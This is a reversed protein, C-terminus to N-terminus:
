SKLKLLGRGSKEIRSDPPLRSAVQLQGTAGLSQVRSVRERVESIPMARGNGHEALVWEVVENQDVKEHDEPHLGQVPEMWFGKQLNVLGDPRHYRLIADLLYWRQTSPVQELDEAEPTGELEALLDSCHWQYVDGFRQHQRISRRGNLVQDVVRSALPQQNEINLPLDAHCAYLGHGLQFVGEFVDTSDACTPDAALVALTNALTPRPLKTADLIESTKLPRGARALTCVITAAATNGMSVVRARADVSRDVDDSWNLTALLEREIVQRQVSRHRQLLNEFAPELSNWEREAPLHRQHLLELLETTALDIDLTTAALVIGDDVESRQYVAMRRDRYFLELFREIAAPETTRLAPIPCEPGLPLARGARDLYDRIASDIREILAASRPMRRLRQIAETQLRRLRERPGTVSTQLEAPLRAALAGLTQAPAIAPEGIRAALIEQGQHLAADELQGLIWALLSRFDVFQDLEPVKDGGLPTGALAQWLSTRAVAPLRDELDRLLSRQQAPTLDLRDQIEESSLGALKSFSDIGKKELIHLNSIREVLDPALADIWPPVSRALRGLWVLAGHARIGAALCGFSFRRRALDLRLEVPLASERQRYDRESLVGEALLTAGLESEPDALTMLWNGPYWADAREEDDLFGECADTWQQRADESVAMAAALRTLRLVLALIDLPAAQPDFNLSAALEDTHVLAREGDALIGQERQSAAQLLTRRLRALGPMPDGACAIQFHLFAHHGALTMELGTVRTALLNGDDSRSPASL